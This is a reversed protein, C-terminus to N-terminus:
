APYNMTSKYINMGEYTKDMIQYYEFQLIHYFDIVKLAEKCGTAEALSKAIKTKREEPTLSQMRRLKDAM